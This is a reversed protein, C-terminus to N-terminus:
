FNFKIILFINLVMKLSIHIFNTFFVTKIERTFKNSWVVKKWFLFIKETHRVGNGNLTYEPDDKLSSEANQEMTLSEM